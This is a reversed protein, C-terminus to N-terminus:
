VTHVKYLQCSTHTYIFTLGILKIKKAKTFVEYVLESPWVPGIRNPPTMYQEKTKSVAQKSMLPVVMQAQSESPQLFVVNVKQIFHSAKQAWNWVDCSRKTVYFGM